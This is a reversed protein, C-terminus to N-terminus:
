LVEEKLTIGKNKAHKFSLPRSATAMLKASTSNNFFDKTELIVIQFFIKCPVFLATPFCVKFISKPM